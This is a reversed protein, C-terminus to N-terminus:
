LDGKTDPTVQGQVSQTEPVPLEAEVWYRAEGDKLTDVVLDMMMIDDDASSWGNANWDGDPDVAVAIKVKVTKM